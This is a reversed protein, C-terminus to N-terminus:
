KVEKEKPQEPNVYDQVAKRIAPTVEKILDKIIAGAEKGLIDSEVNITTTVKFISAM